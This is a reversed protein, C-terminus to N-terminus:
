LSPLVRMGVPMWRVESPLMWSSALRTFAHMGVPMWAKNPPLLHTKLQFMQWLFEKVTQILEVGLVTDARVVMGLKVVTDARVVMGVKVVTVARVVMGVKVVTVTDM